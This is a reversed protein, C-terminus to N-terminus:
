GRANLFSNPESHAAWRASWRESGRYRVRSPPTRKQHSTTLSAAIVPERSRILFTVM